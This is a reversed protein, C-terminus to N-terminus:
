EEGLVPITTTADAVQRAPQELLYPGLLEWGQERATAAMSTLADFRRGPELRNGGVTVQVQTFADQSALSQLLHAGAMLTEGLILADEPSGTDYIPNLFRLIETHADDISGTVLSAPVRTADTLQFKERVESETTFIAM